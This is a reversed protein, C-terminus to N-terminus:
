NIVIQPSNVLFSEFIHVGCNLCMEDFIMKTECISCQRLIKSCRQHFYPRQYFHQSMISSNIEREGDKIDGLCAFCKSKQQLTENM